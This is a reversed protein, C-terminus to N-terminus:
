SRERLRQDLTDRSREQGLRTRVEGLRRTLTLHEALQRSSMLRPLPEDRQALGEGPSTGWRNRYHELSRAADRWLALQSPTSPRPGLLELAARSALVQRRGVQPEQVGRGTSTGELLLDVSEKVVQGSAGPTLAGCFASVVDRRSWSQRESTLLEGAFRREDLRNVEHAHVRTERALGLEVGADRARRQWHEFLQPREPETVKPDRTAAWAIRRAKGSELSREAVHQRISASRGSFVGRTLPDLHEVERVGSREETWTVGLRRQLSSRMHADFVRGLAMRHADLGRGDLASWQGDAGHAINALLVHTHLHPDLSRSTLHTLAVGIPGEIGIVVREDANGRRVGLAHSGLYDVAADVAERQSQEISRAVEDGGLAFLVSVSKPSTFTLDYAVVSRTRSLLTRESHPHAGAMVSRVSAVAPIGTLDWQAAGQGVWRPGAWEPGGRHAWTDLDPVYYDLSNSALRAIGLM